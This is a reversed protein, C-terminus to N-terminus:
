ASKYESFLANSKRLIIALALDLSYGFSEARLFYFDVDAKAPNQITNFSDIAHKTLQLKKDECNQITIYKAIAYEKV